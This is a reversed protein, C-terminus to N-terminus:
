TRFSVELLTKTSEFLTDIRVTGTNRRQIHGAKPRRTKVEPSMTLPDTTSQATIFKVLASGSAVHASVQDELKKWGVSFNVCYKCRVNVKGASDLTYYIRRHFSLACRTSLTM